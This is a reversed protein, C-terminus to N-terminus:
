AEPDDLRRSLVISIPEYGMREYLARAPANHGFVHLQVRDAGLERARQETARLARTAYGRRRFRDFVQVDYIWVARGNGTTQLVFWVVGVVEPADHIEYVFRRETETGEPLLGDFEGAARVPAEGPSWVSSDAKDRAHHVIAHRRYAAFREAPM